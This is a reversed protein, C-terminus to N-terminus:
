GALARLAELNRIALARGDYSIFGQQVWGQLVHDVMDDEAAVVRALRPVRMETELAGEGENLLLLLNAVRAAVNGLAAERVLLNMRYLRQGLHQIVQASMEPEQRCMELFADRSLGILTSDSVAAVSGTRPQGVISSLDGVIYYPGETALIVEDGSDYKRVIHVQGEILVYLSDGPDGQHFLTEGAALERYHCRRALTALVIEPLNQFLEADRLQTYEVTTQM